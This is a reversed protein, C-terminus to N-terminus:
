NCIVATPANGGTTSQITLSDINGLGGETGSVLSINARGTSLEVNVEKPRYDSWTGTANLDVKADVQTGNVDLRGWRNDDAGNAYVFTFKYTGAAPVDVSWNIAKGLENFTNAFGVGTFGANDSDVTGDVSCFGPSNEEILISSIVPDLTFIVEAEPESEYVTNDALMVKFMYWYKQGEVLDDMDSFSGEKAQNTAILVSGEKSDSTNRYIEVNTVDNFFNELKWSLSVGGDVLGSFLNTAPKPLSFMTEAEPSTDIRTGDSLIIKFMYWYTTGDVLDSTDTLTGTTTAGPLGSESPIIRIRGNISNKDNRYLEISKFEQSFNQLDWSVDIQNGSYVAALNTVNPTNIIEGAIDSTPTSGDDLTLKFMYWYRIDPDVTTDLFSGAQVSASDPIHIRVRGSTGNITNRYLESGKVNEYNEFNWNVEIGADTYKTTLNTRQTIFHEGFIPESSVISNDALEFEIWYAYKIGEVTTDDTYATLRTNPTAILDRTDIDPVTNEDVAEARYISITHADINRTAWILQVNDHTSTANAIITPLLTSTLKTKSLALEEIEVGNSDFVVAWYYYTVDPVATIDDFKTQGAGLTGVSVRGAVNDSTNRFIEVSNADIGDLYVNLVVSDQDGQAVLKKLDAKLVTKTKFQPLERISLLETDMDSGLYFSPHPPQNYGVNQWAIATRYQSDHMLTPLRLDTAIPTSFIMLETSDNNAFVVEERWDGFLDATLSPTAKTSNNSVANYVSGEFIVDSTFTEPNWKYINVGDLLERLLDGDWWLAFNMQPPKETNGERIVTGDAAIFGGRSGWNENGPYNPDVDVSIGRGVDESNGSRSWIIDGTAADHLEVGYEIGDKTYCPVCEHVMFVELGPRNPDIDTVHLADGHGLGTSYLVKGDHDITAAGYIIEDYGDDDVDAISLSHAGQGAFTADEGGNESDLYWREVFTGEVWDYAVIASRSYYGRAMILSPADDGLYAVGGLFRDVRNGYGGGGDRWGGVDGRQPNYDITDLVEGSLGDFMTLFEPGDLVRGQENRYIVNADGIVTGRGDITGDATKMAVEARGDQDFDYVMFQTYHAGSRINPGLNIRWLMEGELTYADILTDGTKGEQSPDKANSPYWKVIMEYQGDGNLDVTSADNAAYSYEIGDVFGNDPKNLPISLYQNAWPKVEKSSGVEVGGVFSKVQYTDTPLGTIDEHFTKDVFFDNSLLDFTEGGGAEKKYLKFRVNQDDSGLFRWSLANGKDTPIVVLGRDLFEMARGTRDPNTLEPQEQSIIVDDEVLATDAKSDQECGLLLTTIVIPLLVKAFVKNNGKKFSGNENM